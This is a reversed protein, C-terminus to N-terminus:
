FVQANASLKDNREEVRGATIEPIEQEAIFYQLKGSITHLGIIQLQFYSVYYYANLM